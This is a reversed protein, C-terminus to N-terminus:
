RTAWSLVRLDERDRVDVDLVAVHRTPEVELICKPDLSGCCGGIVRTGCTYRDLRNDLFISSQNFVCM